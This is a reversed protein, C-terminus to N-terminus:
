GIRAPPVDVLRVADGDIDIVTPRREGDDSTVNAFVTGDLQWAGGDEHIHGSLHLRPRVIAVRARLDDCGEHHESLV